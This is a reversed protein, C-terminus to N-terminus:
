GSPVFCAAIYSVSLLIWKMVSGSVCVISHCCIRNRGYLLDNRLEYRSVARLQSTVLGSDVFECVSLMIVVQLVSREDAFAFSCSDPASLM